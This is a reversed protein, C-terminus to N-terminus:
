VFLLQKGASKGMLAQRVRSVRNNTWPKGVSLGSKFAMGGGEACPDAITTTTTTSTTYTNDM